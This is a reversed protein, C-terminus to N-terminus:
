FQKFYSARSRAPRAPSWYSVAESRGRRLPDHGSLRLAWGIPAFIAFFLVALIM